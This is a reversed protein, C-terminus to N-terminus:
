FLAVQVIAFSVLALAPTPIGKGRGDLSLIARVSEKGGLLLNEREFVRAAFLLALMAYIMSALLTLFVDDPKVDGVFLGKALLAINAIPIFATWPTLATNPTNVLALPFIMALLLPTMLSQADKFGRAFVAVALFLASSLSSIPILLVFALVFNWISVSIEGGGITIRTFTLAMSVVNCLTGILSIAWVALFKGTIIEVPSLPACLLTQMTGREKEGATMDIASYFGGTVSMAILLAPLILGLLMGSKRSKPAVNQARADIAQTFGAPTGREVERSNLTIKRFYRLDDSLRDSATRSDGRVSDFFVSLKGSGGRVFEKALGPWAVVVADAKRDLIVARAAKLVATEEPEPKERLNRDDREELPTPFKPAAVRGADLDKRLSEPAGLWLSVKLKERSKFYELLPAPADGWVAITSPREKSAEMESEVLRSSVLIMLPYLLLPIGVLMILTRRDRLAELFEKRFITVAIKWRM